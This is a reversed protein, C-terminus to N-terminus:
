NGRQRIYMIYFYFDFCDFNVITKQIIEEFSAELEKDTKSELKELYADTFLLNYEGRRVMDTWEKATLGNVM